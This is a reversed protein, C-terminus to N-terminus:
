PGCRWRCAGAAPTLPPHDISKLTGNVRIRPPVYTTIHLDSADADIAIQLLDQIPLTM